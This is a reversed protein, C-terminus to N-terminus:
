ETRIGPWETVTFQPFLTDPSVPSMPLDDDDYEYDDEDFLDVGIGSIRAISPPLLLDNM